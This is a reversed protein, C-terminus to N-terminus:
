NITNSFHWKVQAMIEVADMQNDAYAPASNDEDYSKKTGNLQLSLASFDYQLGATIANLLYKGNDDRDSEDWIDYRALLSLDPGLINKLSLKPFIMIGWAQYDDASYSSAHDVKKSLYELCIDIPGNIYHALGDLMLQDQYKPNVSDDSLLNEREVSNLLVSGGLTLGAFPIMRINALYAFQTNDKLNSGYKKYGEGNYLGLAYEGWGKPLYGHASIGYDASSTLKYEDAPAKGILSYDWDYLTGFYVKQLGATLTMDTVPLLNNFDLYAYKLKLGAGNSVSDTSFIDVTFRSKIDDSIKTELGLYGRELALFNKLVEDEGTAPNQAYEMSWRSWFEGSLKTEVGQLMSCLLLLVSVSVILKRM